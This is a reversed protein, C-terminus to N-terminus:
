SIVDTGDHLMQDMSPMTKITCDTENCIEIIQKRDEVTASPMAIMIEDIELENALRVIDYRNGLVRVGNIISNRKAIDDDVFCVVNYNLHM